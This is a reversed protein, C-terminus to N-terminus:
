VALKECLEYNKPLVAYVFTLIATSYGFMIVVFIKSKTITSIIEEYGPMLEIKQSWSIKSFSNIIINDCYISLNFSLNKM